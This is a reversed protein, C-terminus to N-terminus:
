ARVEGSFRAPNELIFNCLRDYEFRTLQSLSRKLFTREVWTMVEPRSWRKSHAIAFLRQIQKDTLARSGSIGSVRLNSYPNSYSPLPPYTEPRRRTM